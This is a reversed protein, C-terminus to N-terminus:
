TQCQWMRSCSSLSIIRGKTTEGGDTVGHSSSSNFGPLRGHVGPPPASFPEAARKKHKGPVWGEYKGRGEESNAWDNGM